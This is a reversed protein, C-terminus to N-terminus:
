SVGFIEVQVIFGYVNLYFWLPQKGEICDLIEPDDLQVEVPAATCNKSNSTVYCLARSSLDIWASVLTGENLAAQPVQEFVSGNKFSTINSSMQVGSPKCTSVGLGLSGSWRADTRTVMFSFRNVDGSDFSNSKYELAEGLACLGNDFGSKRSAIRNNESLEINQSHEDHFKCNISHFM